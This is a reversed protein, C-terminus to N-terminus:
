GTSGASWSEYAGLMGGTIASGEPMRDAVARLEDRLGKEDSVALLNAGLLLHGASNFHTHGDILGPLVFAGKVNLTRTGAGRWRNVKARSGVEVFRGNQIAVAEAWPQDAEMTYIHGGTVILDAVRSGEPRNGGCGAAVILIPIALCSLLHHLNRRTM